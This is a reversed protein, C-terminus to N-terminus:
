LVRWRLSTGDKLLIHMQDNLNIFFSGGSYIIRNNPDSNANENLLALTDAGAIHSIFIFRGAGGFLGTISNQAGGSTTVRLHFTNADLVINNNNGANTTIDQIGSLQIGFQHFIIGTGEWRTALTGGADPFRFDLGTLGANIGIAYRNAVGDESFQIFGNNGSNPRINITTVPNRFTAQGLIGLTSNFIWSGAITENKSKIAYLEGNNLLIGIIPILEVIDIEEREIPILGSTGSGSIGPPGIPGQIGQPGPIGNEGDEGDLGPIGIGIPGIPGIMGPIGPPGPIGPEGDQGDIGSQVAANIILRKGDNNFGIGNGAAIQRSNPLLVQENETTVYSSGSVSGSGGGNIEANVENTLQRVTDILQFIVQYLPQNSQQLGSILLQSKLRDLAKLEIM